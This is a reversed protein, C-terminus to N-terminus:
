KKRKKEEKLLAKDKTLREKLISLRNSIQMNPFSNILRRHIFDKSKLAEKVKKTIAETSDCRISSSINKLTIIVNFSFILDVLFIISLFICMFMLTQTTFMQLTPIVIPNTGYFMVIGGVGFPIAFELCVRGNINFKMDSYDWWRNKFIKEMVYSTIYELTACSLIALLFLVLPDNSYKYLTLTMVVCGVGYIPCLPGILFGRNIWKGFQFRAVIIECIWGLFAYIFFMLILILLERM